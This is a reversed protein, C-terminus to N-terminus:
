RRDVSADFEASVCAGRSRAACHGASRVYTACGGERWQQQEGVECTTHTAIRVGRYYYDWADQLIRPSKHLAPSGGSFEIRKFLDVLYTKLVSGFTPIRRSIPGNEWLVKLLLKCKLQGDPRYRASLDRVVWPKDPLQLRQVVLQVSTGRGRRNKEWPQRRGRHEPFQVRRLLNVVDDRFSDSISLLRPHVVVISQLHKEVSAVLFEDDNPHTRRESKKRSHYGPSIM